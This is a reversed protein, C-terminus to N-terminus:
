VRILNWISSAQNMNSLWNRDDHEQNKQKNKAKPKLQQFVDSAVLDCTKLIM